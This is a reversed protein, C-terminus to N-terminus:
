MLRPMLNLSIGLPTKANKILAVVVGYNKMWGRNSGIIRLVEESVNGMRAFTEVEAETLKPSSLVASSIMRNPDRILLARVERSGKVATKVRDPVGMQALKQFISERDVGEEATLLSDDSPDIPVSDPGPVPPAAADTGA